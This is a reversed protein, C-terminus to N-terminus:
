SLTNKYEDEKNRLYYKLSKILCDAEEKMDKAERFSIYEPSAEAILKARNAKEEEKFIDLKKNNFIGERERIVDLITGFISTLQVLYEAAQNPYLEDVKFTARRIEFLTDKCFKYKEM